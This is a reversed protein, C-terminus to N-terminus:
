FNVRVEGFFSRGAQPFDNPIPAGGSAFPSPERVDADFLNRVSFAVEFRDALRTRRLTVDAQGYDHIKDREDGAVRDRDLVWKVQPTLHWEPLFEWNARVYVMHHPANGADHDLEQDSSEQYSYNGLLKLNDAAKWEAQLEGGYGEQRGANQATATTAGADPVFRIIDDWWYYFINAGLRLNDRPRYDFAMEVTEMTEPMLNPNGLTVPNSVFFMESFAPARFATGYLLKATLDYRPEWVLGLRPNVTDGFDSYYDYRVGATFQWDPLFRWEDQMFFFYDERHAPPLFALPTGSVDTVPLGPQFPIPLGTVPDRGFNKSEKTKYMNDYNFGLGLRLTHDEFGTYFASLSARAHREFVEPNGIVGNPFTTLTPGSFLNGDAGIPLRTGPPFLVLDRRIDQNSTDLYSAQATVDWDKAFEPNHYTLDTNWRESAYRNHPDLAQAIGPGNGWNDRRQVGARLKWHGRSLDLRADFNERQLNVPGPALSAQTGFLQDFVTQQDADISRTHGETDHYEVMAAVDFGAWEGGHLGWGDYTDFSGVRGGVETGDIDEKTKTIVNIVGAFADAGYVASGPGRIVEIRSVAQVPMGGWIAGRDGHFSQSIPIGNILVLVQPNFESAVGRFTYIPNYGVFSRAVHLGPVTELAEDIDTAGMAKIDAATIATAVSPAKALPQAKGTAITVLEETGYAQLLAKEEESLEQAVAMGMQGLLVLTAIRILSPMPRIGKRKAGSKATRM